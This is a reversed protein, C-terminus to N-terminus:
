DKKFNVKQRLIIQTSIVPPEGGQEVEVEAEEEEEV